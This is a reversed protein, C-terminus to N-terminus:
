GNEPDKHEKDFLDSGSWKSKISQMMNLWVDHINCSIIWDLISNPEGFTLTDVPVSSVPVDHKLMRAFVSQVMSIRANRECEETSKLYENLKEIGLTWQKLALTMEEDFKIFRYVISKYM